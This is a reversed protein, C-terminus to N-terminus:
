KFNDEVCNDEQQRSHIVTAVTEFEETPSHVDCNILQTLQYRAVNLINRLVFKM